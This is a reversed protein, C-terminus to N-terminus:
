SEVSAILSPRIRRMPLQAATPLLYKMAQYIFYFEQRTRLQMKQMINRKHVYVTRYSIDLRKALMHTPVQAMWNHMILLEQASFLPKSPITMELEHYKASFRLQELLPILLSKACLSCNPMVELFLSRDIYSRELYAYIKHQGFQQLFDRLQRSDGTTQCCESMNILLIDFQGSSQLLAAESVSAVSETTIHTAEQLYSVIGMRTYHCRDVVLIHM